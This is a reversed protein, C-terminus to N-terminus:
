ASVQDFQASGSLRETIEAGIIMGELILKFAARKGPAVSDVTLLLDRAQNVEETTYTKAM